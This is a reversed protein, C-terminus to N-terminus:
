RRRVCGEGGDNEQVPVRALKTEFWLNCVCRDPPHVRPHGHITPVLGPPACVTCCLRFVVFKHEEACQARVGVRVSCKPAGKSESKSEEFRGVAAM